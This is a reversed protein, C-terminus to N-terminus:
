GGLVTKMRQAAVEIDRKQRQKRGVHLVWLRQAKVVCYTRFGGTRIEFLPRQGKIARCSIPAKLM